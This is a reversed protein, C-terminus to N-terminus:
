ISCPVHFMTRWHKWGNDYVTGAQPDCGTNPCFYGDSKYMKFNGYLGGVDNYFSPDIAVPYNDGPLKDLWNADLVISITKGYTNQAAIEESVVGRKNVNVTLPAIGFVKPDIGELEIAGKQDKAEKATIGELGFIFANQVGQRKLIITEKLTPGVFEYHVDVGDWADAYLIYQQGNEERIVPRVNNGSIPKIGFSKSQYTISMGDDFPKLKVSIDGSSFDYAQPKAEFPNELFGEGAIDKKSKYASDAKIEKQLETFKGDKLQHKPLLSYEMTKSGDTNIFTKSNTTRLGIDERSRVKKTTNKPSDTMNPVDIASVAPLPAAETVIPEEVKLSQVKDATSMAAKNFFGDWNIWATLSTVTFVSAVFVIATRHLPKKTKKAIVLFSSKVPKIVSQFVGVVKLRFLKSKAM